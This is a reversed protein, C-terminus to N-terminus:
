DPLIEINVVNRGSTLPIYDGDKEWYPEEVFAVTHKGEDFNVSPDWNVHEGAPILDTEFLLDDSIADFIKYKMVFDGNQELNKLAILSGKRIVADEIGAFFISRDSLEGRDASIEEDTARTDVQMNAATKKPLRVQYVIFLAMIFTVVGIIAIIMTEVLKYKAEMGGGKEGGDPPSIVFGRSHKRRKEM